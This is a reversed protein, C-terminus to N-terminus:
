RCQAGCDDGSRSASIENTKQGPQREVDRLRNILLTLARLFEASTLYPIQRRLALLARIPDFGYLARKQTYHVYVDTFMTIWVDILDHCQTVSLAVPEWAAGTAPTVIDTLRVGRRANIAHASLTAM